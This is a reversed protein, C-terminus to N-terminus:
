RQAINLVCHLKGLVKKPAIGVEAARFKRIPAAPLPGGPTDACPQLTSAPRFASDEQAAVQCHGGAANQALSVSAPAPEAM